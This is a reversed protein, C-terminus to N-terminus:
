ASRVQGTGPRISSASYLGLGGEPRPILTLFQLDGSTLSGYQMFGPSASVGTLPLKNIQIPVPDHWHFINDRYAFMVKGDQLGLFELGSYDSAFVTAHTFGSWRPALDITTWLQGWRADPRELYGYRGDALQFVLVVQHLWEDEQLLTVSGAVLLMQRRAPPPSIGALLGSLLIAVAM